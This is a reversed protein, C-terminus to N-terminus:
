VEDEHDAETRSYFLKEMRECLSAEDSLEFAYLKIEGITTKKKDEIERIWRKSRIDRDLAMWITSIDRKSLEVKM